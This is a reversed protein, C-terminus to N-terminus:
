GNPKGWDMLNRSTFYAALRQKGIEYYHPDKEIVKWKRRLLKAAIATTFSGAFPDLVVDGERSGISLIWLFLQLSKVTQHDNAIPESSQNQRNIDNENDLLRLQSKPHTAGGLFAKRKKPARKLGKEREGRSPKTTILFPFTDRIEKPLQKYFRSSWADLDFYRSFDEGLVSDSIVLNGPMRGNPHSTWPLNKRKSKSWGYVNCSIGDVTQIVGEPIRDAPHAPSTRERGKLQGGFWATDGTKRTRNYDEDNYYGSFGQGSLNKRTDIENPDGKPIPFRGDDLWLVSKGTMMAWAHDSTIDSNEYSDASIITEKGEHIHVTKDQLLPNIAIDKYIVDDKMISVNFRKEYKQFYEETQNNRELDFIYWFMRYYPIKCTEWLDSRHISPISKKCIVIAELSPKLNSNMYAGKLRKGIETTPESIECAKEATMHNNNFGKAPDLYVHGAMKKYKEEDFDIPKSKVGQRWEAMKWASTSKSFGSPYTWYISNFDVEFGADNLNCIFRALLDQRPSCMLFAFAGPKMVRKIKRCTEISPVSIDWALAMFHLGYPVDSAVFDISNEPLKDLEENCDGLIEQNDM